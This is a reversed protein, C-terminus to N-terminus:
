IIKCPTTNKRKVLGKIPSGRTHRLQPIDRELFTRIFGERWALSDEDSNALFSRPFGGRVWLREWQDADTESIDFGSLEIFEVRGALTQSVDRVVEPSASGLILFRCPNDPRDALVRLANFLAPLTQIEDM